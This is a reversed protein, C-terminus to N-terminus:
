EQYTASRAEDSLYTEAYAWAAALTRNFREVNGNTRPRYPRAYRHKNPGLAAAFCHSRYCSGNDTLM